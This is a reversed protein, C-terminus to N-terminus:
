FLMINEFISHKSTPIQNIPYVTWTKRWRPRHTLVHIYVNGLFVTPLGIDLLYGSCLRKSMEIGFLLCEITLM